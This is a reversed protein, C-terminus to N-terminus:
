LVSGIGRVVRRVVDTGYANDGARKGPPGQGLGAERAPRCPPQKRGALLRAGSISGTTRKREATESRPRKGARAPTSRSTARPSATSTCPGFPAPFVVRNRAQAPRTPM